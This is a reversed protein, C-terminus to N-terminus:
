YFSFHFHLYCSSNTFYPVPGLLYTSPLFIILFLLFYYHFAASIRVLSRFMQLAASHVYMSEKCVILLCSNIYDMQM